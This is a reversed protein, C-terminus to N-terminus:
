CDLLPRGNGGRRRDHGSAALTGAESEVAPAAAGHPDFQFSAGMITLTIWALTITHTLALVRPHYYHGALDSALWPLSCAAVAFALAVSALYALTLGPSTAPAARSTM